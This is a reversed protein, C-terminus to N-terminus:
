RPQQPGRKVSDTNITLCSMKQLLMFNKSCYSKWSRPPAPSFALEEITPSIKSIEVKTSPCSRRQKGFMQFCMNNIITNFVIKLSKSLVKAMRKLFVNGLGDAGKAKTTDLQERVNKIDHESFHVEHLRQLNRKSINRRYTSKSFVSQVNTNFLQAKALGNSAQTTEFYMQSPLTTQKKM